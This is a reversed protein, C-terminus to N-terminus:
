GKLAAEAVGVKTGILRRLEVSLVAVPVMLWTKKIDLFWFEGMGEVRQIDSWAISQQVGASWTELRDDFFTWRITRSSLRRLSRRVAIGMYWQGFRPDFYLASKFLLLLQCVVSAALLYPTLVFDGAWIMVAAQGVVLMAAAVML